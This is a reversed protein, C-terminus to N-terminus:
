PSAPSGPWLHLPLGATPLGEWAWVGGPVADTAYLTRMDAGGFCCNTTVGRGPLELVEVVIGDPELVTVGHIGGAVYLRGDVDFCFGDGVQDVFRDLTGDAGIRVLGHHPRGMLGNEVFVIAGAPDIAIGNPYWLGDVLTDLTGDPLYARIRGVAETPLPWPPPDTFYVSGDSGIVLDNPSRCADPAPAARRSAGLASTRSAYPTLYTVTGDPAVRQLGPQAPRYPPPDDFMGIAAFDLGGNQTVLFGGDVCAAAGNAGGGTDAIRVGDGTAPDIRFLAGESVSTCVITGGMAGDGPCWVPGEAFPPTESVHRPTPMLGVPDDARPQGPSALIM